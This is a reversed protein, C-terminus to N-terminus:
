MREPAEIGLMWLARSLVAHSLRCLALRAARVEQDAEGLVPCEAYFRSYHQALGFAYEAIGSPLLATAAAAVVDPFRLCELVLAREAPHRPSLPGTLEGDGTSSPRSRGSPEMRAVLVTGLLIAM